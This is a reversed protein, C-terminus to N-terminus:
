FTDWKASQCCIIATDSIAVLVNFPLKNITRQIGMDSPLEPGLADLYKKLFAAQREAQKVPSPMGTPLKFQRTWEGRDNITVKGTISKSEIIIMGYKHIILHDIQASDGSFELRIGNLVSVNPDDGFARRLYFAMQKEADLGAQVFKDTAKIIDPEKLIM